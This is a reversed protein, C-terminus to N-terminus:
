DRPCFSLETKKKQKVKDMEDLYKKSIKEIENEASKQENQSPSSKKILDRVKQRSLRLNKKGEEIIQEVKKFLDKRITENMPSLSFYVEKDKSRGLQYGLNADLIAKIM